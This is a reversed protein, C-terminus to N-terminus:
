WWCNWWHLPEVDRCSGSRVRVPATFSYRVNGQAGGGTCGSSVAGAEGDGSLLGACEFQAGGGGSRGAAEVRDSHPARGGKGARRGLGQNSNPIGAYAFWG